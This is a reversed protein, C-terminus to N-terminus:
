MHIDPLFSLFLLVPDSPIRHSRYRHPRNPYVKDSRCVLMTAKFYHVLGLIFVLGRWLMTVTEGPLTHPYRIYFLVTTKDKYRSNRYHFVACEYQALWCSTMNHPVIQRCAGKKRYSIAWGLHFLVATDCVLKFIAFDSSMCWIGVTM